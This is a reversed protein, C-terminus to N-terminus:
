SNDAAAEQEREFKKKARLAFVVLVFWACIVAVYITFAVSESAFVDELIGRGMSLWTAILAGLVAGWMPVTYQNAFERRKKTM